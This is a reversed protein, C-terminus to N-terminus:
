QNMRYYPADPYQVSVFAPQIGQANFLQVLSDYIRLRLAMDRSEQGFFAQWGRGDTWGLGYGADYLIAQGAPAHPALAVIAQVLDASIYPRPTLADSPPTADTEPASQAQVTIVGQAVGRPRFAIGNSDIWTYGGDQNWVIVPTRERVQVAITNPLGLRVHAEVLDPLNLRLRQELERPDLWFIQTHGIGLAASLEEASLRQNGSVRPAGAVFTEATFALYLAAGLLLTLGGSIFRWKASSGSFSIAPLRVELGPMSFAAERRRRVPPRERGSVPPLVPRRSTIPAVPRTALVAPDHRHQGGERKRRRRVAESRNGSDPGKM